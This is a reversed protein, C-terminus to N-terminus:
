FISLTKLGKFDSNHYIIYKELIFIINELDSKKYSLKKNKSTLCLFLEFLETSFDFTTLKDKNCNGCVIGDTYSFANHDSNNIENGCSSCNTFSLEFGIEKIFFMFFQTFHLIPQSNEKDMLNLSKVVGRFLKENADKEPVLKLILEVIASAYKVRELDSKINHFHSILNAQTVLQLEKQEKHYFVAEVLNLTDIKSGIRSKSSRAGKIIASIKGHEKTYLEVILSSDSFNTKRLVLAENKTIEAM